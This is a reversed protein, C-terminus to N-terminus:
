CSSRDLLTSVTTAENRRLVRLVIDKHATIWGCRSGPAVIKSFTDVRIVRGDIDLSLFTPVIPSDAGNPRVQLFCDKSMLKSLPCHSLSECPDDEVILLGHKRAVNYVERKREASM